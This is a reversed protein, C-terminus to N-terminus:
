LLLEGIEKETAELKKFILVLERVRLSGERLKRSFNQRTMGLEEAIDSQNINKIRMGMLIYAEIKRMKNEVPDLSRVRPM